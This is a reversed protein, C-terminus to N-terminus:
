VWHTVRVVSPVVTRHQGAPVAHLLTHGGAEFKPVVTDDHSAQVPSSLEHWLLLSHQEPMQLLPSQQEALPVGHSDPLMMQQPKQRLPKQM